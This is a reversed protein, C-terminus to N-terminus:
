RERVDDDMGAGGAKRGVVISRGAGTPSTRIDVFGARTLFAEIEGVGYCRGYTSRCLLVSYEAVELPGNEDAALHADHDVM